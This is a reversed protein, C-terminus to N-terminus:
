EIEIRKINPEKTFFFGKGYNLYYTGMGLGTIKCYTCFSADHLETSNTDCARLIYITDHMMKFTYYWACAGTVTCLEFCVTDGIIRPIMGKRDSEKIWKSVIKYTFKVKKETITDNITDGRTEAIRWKKAWIDGKNFPSAPMLIGLIIIFSVVYPFGRTKMRDKNAKQNM